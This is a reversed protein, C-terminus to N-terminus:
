ASHLGPLGLRSDAFQVAECRFHLGGVPSAVLRSSFLALKQEGAEERACDRRLSSGARCKKLLNGSPEPRPGISHSWNLSPEVHPQVDGTDDAAGVESLLQQFFTAADADNM